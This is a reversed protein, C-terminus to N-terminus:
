TPRSKRLRSSTIPVCSVQPPPGAAALSMAPLGPRDFAFRGMLEAALHGADQASGGNGIFIVKNGERFARIMAQAIDVVTESDSGAAIQQKVSIAAALRERVLAASPVVVDSDSMGDIGDM